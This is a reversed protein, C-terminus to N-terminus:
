SWVIERSAYGGTASRYALLGNLSFALQAGGSDPASKVDALVPIPAGELQLRREDLHAAYLVEKAVFTILRPAVYRPYFANTYVIKREGTDLRQAIIKASDFRAPIGSAYVIVNSGPLSSVWRHAYGGQEHKTVADPTGGSDPVRYLVGTRLL